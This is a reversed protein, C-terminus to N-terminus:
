LIITHTHGLEEQLIGSIVPHNHFASISTTQNIQSLSTINENIVINHTHPPIGGPGAVMGISTTLTQPMTATNRIARWTYIPDFKRVRQAKFGQKGSLGDLLKHWIGEDSYAWDETGDENFRIIFDRNKLSPFVLTWCDPIFTSELGADEMKLSEETPGFRVLIRGDSRRPNFFQEYGTIFSTGFCIDCRDESYEPSSLYCKCRIGTWVRRVLVCPEGTGMAELLMEQRQNNVQQVSIGRLQRGVGDYGDACFQEGGYYTGVCDGRLLAAPNTRHWGVYDYSPFDANSVDSASLDTNLLDKTVTKFGDTNTRAYNPYTFHSVQQFVVENKEELGHWFNVLPDSHTEYGDYGDITHERIDTELFGRTLGSLRGQGLDRNTYSILEVGIKVVGYIPFQDADSIPIYGDTSLMNSTLMGSPYMKSSGDDLLLSLNYWNPDYEIARVAFYFMDGPTLEIIDTTFLTSDISVFKVGELFVDERVNSYYINYAINYGTSDPYAENWIIRISYGDGLSNASIIGQTSQPLYSPHRTLCM